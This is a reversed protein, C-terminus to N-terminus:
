KLTFINQFEGCNIVEKQIQQAEGDNLSLNDTSNIDFVYAVCHIRDKLSPSTIFTPHKPTIPKKPVLSNYFYLAVNLLIRENM